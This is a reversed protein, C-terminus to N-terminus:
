SANLWCYIKVAWTGLLLSVFLPVGIWPSLGSAELFFFAFVVLAYCALPALRFRWKM